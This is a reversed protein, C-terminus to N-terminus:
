VTEDPILNQPDMSYSSNGSQAECIQAILDFLDDQMDTRQGEVVVSNVEANNHHADQSGGEPPSIHPIEPIRSPESTKRSTHSRMYEDYLIGGAKRVINLFIWAIRENKILSSFIQKAGLFNKQVVTKVSIYCYNSNNPYLKHAITNLSAVMGCFHTKFNKTGESLRVFEQCERMLDCGSPMQTLNCNEYLTPSQDSLEQYTSNIWAHDRKGPHRMIIDRVTDRILINETGAEM